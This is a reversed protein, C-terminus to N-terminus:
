YGYATSLGRNFLIFDFM